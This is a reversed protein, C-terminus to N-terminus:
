DLSPFLYSALQSSAWSRFPGLPLVSRSSPRGCFSGLPLVSRSSPRGRFPGFPIVSRLSPPGHFLGLPIVSRSFPRIHSSPARPELFLSARSSTFHFLRLLPFQLSPHIFSDHGYVHPLRPCHHPIHHTLLFRLTLILRSFPQPKLKPFNEFQRIKVAIRPSYTLGPGKSYYAKSVQNCFIM